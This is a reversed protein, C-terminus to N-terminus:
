REAHGMGESLDIRVTYVSWQLINRYETSVVTIGSCKLGFSLLSIFRRGPPCFSTFFSLDVTEPRSNESNRSSIIIVM